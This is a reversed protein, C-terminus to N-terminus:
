KESVTWLGFGRPDSCLFPLRHVTLVKHVTLDREFGWHNHSIFSRGLCRLPTHPLINFVRMTEGGWCRYGIVTKMNQSSSGCCMYPRLSYKSWCVCVSLTDTSTEAIPRPSINKAVACDLILRRERGLVLKVGNQKNKARCGSYILASNSQCDTHLQWVAAWSVWLVDVSCRVSPDSTFSSYVDLPPASLSPAAVCWM